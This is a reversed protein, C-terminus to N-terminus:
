SKFIDDSVIDFGVEKFLNKAENARRMMYLEAITEHYAYLCIRLYKNAKRANDFIQENIYPEIKEYFKKSLLTKNQLTITFYFSPINPLKMTNECILQFMQEQILKNKDFSSLNNDHLLNLLSKTISNYQYKSINEFFTYRTEQIKIYNIPDNLIYYQENELISSVNIIGSFPHQANNGQKVDMEFDQNNYTKVTLDKNTNKGAKIKESPTESNLIVKSVGDFSTVCNGALLEPFFRIDTREGGNQLSLKESLSIESRKRISHNFINFIKSKTASLRPAVAKALSQKTLLEGKETNAFHDAINELLMKKDTPPNEHFVDKIFNQTSHAFEKKAEQTLKQSIKKM